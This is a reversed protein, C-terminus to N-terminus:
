KAAPPRRNLQAALLRRAANRPADFQKGAPLRALLRRLEEAAHEGDGSLQLAIARNLQAEYFDPAVKLAADFRAIADAPRGEQVEIAGIGNLADAYDPAIELAKGYAAAADNVRGGARLLNGLNNWARANRPDLDIAKRFEAAAGAPDGGEILSVGLVNHVDPRRPDLREAEAAATRAEAVLGGDQLAAALNYWADPDSPTLAVTQRDLVIAQEIAGSQKYARALASRFVANSPDAEVLPVLKGTSGNAEEFRRFLPAMDRPDRAPSAAATRPAVYGLSALKSRTEEDVPGSQAAVASRQIADLQSALRASERRHEDLANSTEGPDHRLDFLEPRLGRILKV